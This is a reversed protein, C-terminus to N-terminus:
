TLFITTMATSRTTDRRRAGLRQLRERCGGLDHLRGLPAVM